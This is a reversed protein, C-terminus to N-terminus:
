TVYNVYCHTETGTIDVFLLILLKNANRRLLEINMPKELEVKNKTKKKQSTQRGSCKGM